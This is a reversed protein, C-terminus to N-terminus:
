GKNMVTTACVLCLEHHIQAGASLFKIIAHMKCSALAVIKSTLTTETENWETTM